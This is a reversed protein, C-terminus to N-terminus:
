AAGVLRRARNPARAAGNFGFNLIPSEAANRDAPASGAEVPLYIEFTSGEGVASELRGFGGCGSVIGRVTSLGLGTGESKTTFFPHWILEQLESAIGTGTDSIELRIFRGPRGEPITAAETPDLDCNVVRLGLVGGGPMADRANICLNLLVQHIKVPNAYAPWLDDAVEAKLKVCGPFTKHIMAVVDRAIDRVPVPGLDDRLGRARSLIEEALGTCRLVSQDILDLLSQENEHPLLPRLMSAVAGIPTLLNKFDHAVGAAVLGLNEIRQVRVLREQILRLQAQCVEADQRFRQSEARLRNQELVRAVALPLRGLHERLVYDAAGGLKVGRVALPEEAEDAVLILPIELSRSQIHALARIAGFRRLSYASLVIEPGAALAVLFETETGARTAELDFGDRRLGALILDFTVGCDELVICRLLTMAATDCIRRYRAM